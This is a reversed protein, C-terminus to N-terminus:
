SLGGNLQLLLVQELIDGVQPLDGLHRSQHQWRINQEADLLVVGSQQSQNTGFKQQTFGNIWGKAINMLGKPGFTSMLSSHLGLDQYINLTPDTLLVTQESISLRERVNPLATVQDNAIFMVNIKLKMLDVYIQQLENVMMSCEICQGQRLLILLTTQHNLIDSLTTVEGNETFLPRNQFSHM